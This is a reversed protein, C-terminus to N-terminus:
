GKLQMDFPVIVEDTGFYFGFRRELSDFKLASGTRGLRGFAKSRLESPIASNAELTLEGSTFEYEEPITRIGEQSRDMPRLSM